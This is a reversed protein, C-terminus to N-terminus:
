LKAALLAVFNPMVDAQWNTWPSDTGEKTLSGGGQVQIFYQGKRVNIEGTAYYADDAGGSTGLDKYDDAVRGASGKGLTWNYDLEKPADINRIKVSIKVVPNYGFGRTTTAKLDCQTSRLAPGRSKYSGDATATGYEEIGTVEPIVKKVDEKTVLDCADPWTSMDSPVPAFKGGSTPAPPATPRSGAKQPAISPGGSKTAKPDFSPDLRRESPPAITSPGAKPENKKGDTGNILLAAVVVVATGGATAAVWGAIQKRRNRQPPLPAGAPGYGAM